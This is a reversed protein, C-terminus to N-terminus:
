KGMEKNKLYRKKYYERLKDRNKLYYEKRYELFKDKNKLYNEKHYERLKDRNKLYYEKRQKLIKDKNKLFYTGNTKYYEKNRKKIEEKSLPVRPSKDKWYYKKHYENRRRRSEEPTLRRVQPKNNNLFKNKKRKKDIEEWEDQTRGSRVTRRYNRQYEREKVCDECFPSDPNQNFEIDGCKKCKKRETDEMWEKFEEPTRFGTKNWNPNIGSEVKFFGCEDNLCDIEIFSEKYDLIKDCYFWSKSGCMECNGTGEVSM